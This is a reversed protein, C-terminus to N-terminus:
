VLPIASCMRIVCAAVVLPIWWGKSELLSFPEKEPERHVVLSHIYESWTQVYHKGEAEEYLRYFELIAQHFYVGEGTHVRAVIDKVKPDAQIAGWVAADGKRIYIGDPCVWQPVCGERDGGLDTDDVDIGKPVPIEIGYKERLREEVRTRREDEPLSLKELLARTKKLNEEYARDSLRVASNEATLM